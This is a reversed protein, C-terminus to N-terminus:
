KKWLRGARTHTNKPSGRRVIENKRHVYKTASLSWRREMGAQRCVGVQQDARKGAQRDVLRDAQRSALQALEVMDGWREVFGRLCIFDTDKVVAEVREAKPEKSLGHKRANKEKKSATSYSIIWGRCTAKFAEWVTQVSKLNIEIYEQIKENIMSLFTEDKLLSNNFRWQKIKNYTVTPTFLVSLPAHNLLIINHIKCNIVNSVLSRSLLLYDIWSYSNHAHSYFTYEQKDPNVVRWIDALARSNQVETLANSLARDSPLSRGSRLLLANSVLNLDGGLLIPDGAFESLVLNLKSLFTNQGTSPAYVNVVTCRENQLFGSLIIYRGDKDVKQKLM